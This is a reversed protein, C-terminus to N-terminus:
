SFRAVLIKGHTGTAEEKMQNDSDAAKKADAMDSIYGFPGRIFM